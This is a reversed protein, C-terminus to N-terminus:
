FYIPVNVVSGYDCRFHVKAYAGNRNSASQIPPIISVYGNAIDSDALEKACQNRNGDYLRAGTVNCFEYYTPIANASSFYLRNQEKDIRVNVDIIKWSTFDSRLGDTVVRAQYNGYPENNLDIKTSSSIEVTKYLISDKYIEIVDGGSVNLSVTEGTIFCAKDGKNTCIADNYKFPILTEGDVAVFENVPTYETNKYLYKYRYIKWKGDKLMKNFENEGEVVIRCCGKQKAQSIEVKSITGDPAKKIDTILAVHGKQWLVDALRIGQASQNDVLEMYDERSLDASNQIIKLGLAYSVLGSCVTGYYASCNKGHYPPKNLYESYLLSQPNNVATMFTHFSVDQGVYTNIEKVSSYILGQYEKGTEYIKQMNGAIPALPTFLLDTMQHAKKVANLAGIANLSDLSPYEDGQQAYLPISIFLLLLSIIRSPM